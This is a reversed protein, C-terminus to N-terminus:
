FFPSIVFDLALFVFSLHASLGLLLHEEGELSLGNVLLHLFLPPPLLQLFVLVYDSRCGQLGLNWSLGSHIRDIYITLGNRLTSLFCGGHFLRGSVTSFSSGVEEQLIIGLTHCCRLRLKLLFLKPVFIVFRLRVLVM